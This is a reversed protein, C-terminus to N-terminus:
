DPVNALPNTSRGAKAARAAAKAPVQTARPKANRKRRRASRRKVRLLGSDRVADLIAHGLAFLKSVEDATRGNM